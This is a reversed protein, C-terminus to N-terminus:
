HRGGTEFAAPESRATDRARVRELSAAAADRVSLHPDQTALVLASIVEQGTCLALAGVAELRVGVDEDEALVVLQHAMEDAAGMAVAMAIGRRRISSSPSSLEEGLRQPSSEDVKWVL